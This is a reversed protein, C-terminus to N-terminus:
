GLSHLDRAVHSASFASRASAINRLHSLVPHVLVTPEAVQRERQCLAITIRELDQLVEHDVRTLDFSRPDLDPCLRPEVAAVRPRAEEGHEQVAIRAAARMVAAPPLVDSEWSLYTGVAFQWGLEKAIAQAFASPSLGSAQRLRALEDPSREPQRFRPHHVIEGM